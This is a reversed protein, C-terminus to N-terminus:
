CKFVLAEKWIRYLENNVITSGYWAVSLTKLYDRCDDRNKISTYSWANKGQTSINKLVFHTWGQGLLSASVRVRAAPLCHPAVSRHAAQRSPGLSPHNQCACHCPPALRERGYPEPGNEALLQGRSIVRDSPHPMYCSLSLFHVCVEWFIQFFLGSPLYLHLRWFLILISRLHKNINPKKLRATM